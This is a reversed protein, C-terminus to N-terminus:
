TAISGGSKSLLLQGVSSDEEDALPLLEFHFWVQSTNKRKCKCSQTLGGAPESATHAEPADRSELSKDLGILAEVSDEKSLLKM